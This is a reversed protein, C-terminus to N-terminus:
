WTDKIALELWDEFSNFFEHNEIN